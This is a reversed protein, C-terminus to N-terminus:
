PSFRGLYLGLSHWPCSGYGSSSLVGWGWSHIRALFLLGCEQARPAARLSLFAAGVRLLLCLGTSISAFPMFLAFFCSMMWARRLIRCPSPWSLALSPVLSRSLSPWSNRFMPSVPMVVLFPFLVPFRRSSGSVSSLLWRLCSFFRRPYPACRLTAFLNLLAPFWFVCFRRSTGPLLVCRTPHLLCGLPICCNGFFRTALSPLSISSSCWPSCRDIARSPPSM